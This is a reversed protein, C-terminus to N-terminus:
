NKKGDDRDMELTAQRYKRYFRSIGFEKEESESIFRNKIERNGNGYDSLKEGGEQFCGKSVFGKKTM